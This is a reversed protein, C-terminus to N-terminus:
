AKAGLDVTIGTKVIISTGTWWVINAEVGLGVVARGIATRKLRVIGSRGAKVGLTLNDCEGTRNSLVVDVVIGDASGAARELISTRMEVVIGLWLVRGHALGLVM